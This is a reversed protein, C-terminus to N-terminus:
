FVLGRDFLEGAADFCPEIRPFDAGGVVEAVLYFDPGALERLISDSALPWV